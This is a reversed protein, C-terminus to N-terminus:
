TSRQNPRGSPDLRCIEGYAELISESFAAVDENLHGALERFRPLEVALCKRLESAWEPLTEPQEPRTCWAFGALIDLIEVATAADSNDLIKLLFPLAPLSASSVYAHQHCLGCWLAHAADKRESEDPAFCLCELQNRVNVATGYATEFKAWDIAALRNRFSEDIVGIRAPVFAILEAPSLKPEEPSEEM